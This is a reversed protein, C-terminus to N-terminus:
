AISRAHLMLMLMLMLLLWVRELKCSYVANIYNILLLSICCTGLPYKSMRLASHKGALTQNFCSLPRTTPQIAAFLEPPVPGQLYYYEGGPYYM